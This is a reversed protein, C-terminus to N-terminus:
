QTPTARCDTDQPLASRCLQAVQRRASLEHKRDRRTQATIVHGAELRAPGVREWDVRIVNLGVTLLLQKERILM